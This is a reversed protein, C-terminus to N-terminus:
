EEAEQHWNTIATFQEVWKQTKAIDIASYNNMVLLIKINLHSLRRQRVLQLLFRVAHGIGDVGKSNFDDWQCQDLRDIVVSISTAEPLVELLAILFGTAQEIAEVSDAGDWTSFDIDSVVKEFQELLGEPLIQALQYIFTKLVYWLTRRQQKRITYSLQGFYSLTICPKRLAEEAVWASAYSLWIMEEEDAHEFDVDRVLNYGGLVLMSSKPRDYWQSFTKHSRLMRPSMEAPSKGNREQNESLRRLLSRVRFVADATKVTDKLGLKVRLESIYTRQAKSQEQREMWIQNERVRNNTDEGTSHIDKTRAQIEQLRIQTESLEITVTNLKEGINTVEQLMLVECERHIESLKIRLRSVTKLMGKKLSAEKARQLSSAACYEATQRCFEVTTQFAEIIAARIRDNPEIRELIEFRPFALALEQLVDVILEEHELKKVAVTALVSVTGYALGGFQQDAAKVIEAIGSFGQLVSGVNALVRQTEVGAKRAGGSQRETKLNLLANTARIMSSQATIHAQACQESLRSIHCKADDLSYAICGSTGGLPHRSDEANSKVLTLVSAGWDERNHDLDRLSSFLRRMTLACHPMM